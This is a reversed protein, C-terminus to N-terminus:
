KERAATRELAETDNIRIRVPSTDVLGAERLRNFANTVAVRRAGIMAGMQAHTYRAPITYGEPSVVGESDLLRLILSALRSTVDKHIVDFLKEDMSHLDDALRDILRMGVEPKKRVLRELDARRVFTVVSPEMAEAHLDWMRRGPLVMGASLLVLTLQKGRSSLKYVQVRGSKVLFLGGDDERRRYFGQGEALRVDPYRAAFEELEEESLPELIDVLSLPEIRQRRRDM